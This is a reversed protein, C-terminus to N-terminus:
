SVNPQFHWLVEWIVKASILIFPMLSFAQAPQYNFQLAAAPPAVVGAWFNSHGLGLTIMLM